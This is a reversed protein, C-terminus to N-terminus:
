SYLRWLWQAIAIALSTLISIGLALSFWGGRTSRGRWTFYCSAPLYAMAIIALLLGGCNVRGAALLEGRTALSWSTTMGCSPCRLGFLAVSTCPPLGLQQHTGFGDTAPELCRATILIALVAVGSLGALIRLPKSLSYTDGQINSANMSVAPGPM